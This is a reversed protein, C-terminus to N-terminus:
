VNERGKQKMARIKEIVRKTDEDLEEESVEESGSFVGGM